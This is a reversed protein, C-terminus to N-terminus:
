AVEVKLEGLGVRAVMVQFGSEKAAAEFAQWTDPDLCEARDAVLFSSNALAAIQFSLTFQAGTNLKDSPVGDVYIDGERIEVGPIPLADLKAQRLKDLAELAHTARMSELAKERIRLKMKEIQERAGAARQQADANARVTAIESALREREPKAKDEIQRLVVAKDSSVKALLRQESLRVTAIQAELESIKTQIKGSIEAAQVQAQENAISQAETIQREVDAKEADLERAEKGWDKGDGEPLSASLAKVTGDADREARNTVSRAEFIADRVSKLGDLDTTTGNPPVALMKAVPEPLGGVQAAGVAVQIDKVSVEIPMVSLLFKTREKKDATFFRLPDFSIGSAISEVYDKPRPVPTGDASTIKLEAKKPTITKVITAGDSVLISIQGRPAGKRILDPDFGGDFVSRIADLCSSKGVANQGSLVTLSGVKFTLFEIGKINEITVEKIRTM